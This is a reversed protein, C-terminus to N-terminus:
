KLAKNIETFVIGVLAIVFLVYMTILAGGVAQSVGPTVGAAIAKANLTDGALAWCILFLIGIGVLAGLPKILSKPDSLSNIIPLLVASVIAVLVLIYAIWLGIDVFNEM